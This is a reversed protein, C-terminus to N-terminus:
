EGIPRRPPRARLRRGVDWAHMPHTSQLFINGTEDRLQLLPKGDPMVVFRAREKGNKDQFVLGATGDAWSNRTIQRKGDADDLAFGGSGDPYATASVRTRHNEDMLKFGASRDAAVGVSLRNSGHSDFMEVGSEGDTRVVMALRPKRGPDYFFLEQRDEVPDFGLSVRVNEKGDRVVFRGAEIVTSVGPNAASGIALLAPALLALLAARRWHRCQREVRDLRNLVTATDDKVIM